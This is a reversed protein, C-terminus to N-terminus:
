LEAGGPEGANPWRSPKQEELKEQWERWQPPCECPRDFGHAIPCCMGPDAVMNCYHRM